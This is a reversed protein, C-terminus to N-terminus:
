GELPESPGSIGTSGPRTAVVGLDGARGRRGGAPASYRACAGAMGTCAGDVAGGPWWPIRGVASIDDPRGCCAQCQITLTM